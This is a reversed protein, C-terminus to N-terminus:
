QLQTFNQIEKQNPNDLAFCISIGNLESIIQIIDTNIEDENLSCLLYDINKYSPYFRDNVEINKIILVESQDEAYHLLYCAHQSTKAHTAIEPHFDIEFDPHQSLM